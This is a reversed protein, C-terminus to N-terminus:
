KQQSEKIVLISGNNALFREPYRFMELYRNTQEDTLSSFEPTDCSCVFFPGFVIDLIDGESDFVARNPEMGNIKGEENCIIAVQEEFPYFAEIQGDVARQYEELSTGIDAQSAERGPIVLVVHITRENNM